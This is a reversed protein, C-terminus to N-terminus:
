HIECSIRTFGLQADLEETFCYLCCDFDEVVTSRFRPCSISEDCIECTFNIPSLYSDYERCEDSCFVGQSCCSVRTEGVDECCYCCIIRKKLGGFYSAAVALHSWLQHGEIVTPSLDVRVVVLDNRAIRQMPNVIWLTVGRQFSSVNKGNARNGYVMLTAVDKHKDEVIMHFHDLSDGRIHSVITVVLLCDQHTANTLPVLDLLFIERLREPKPSLMVDDLAETV